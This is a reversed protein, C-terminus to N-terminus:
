LSRGRFQALMVAIPDVEAGSHGSYRNLMISFALHEGSATQVQGSLSSDRNLTGTKARVHGQAAKNKM